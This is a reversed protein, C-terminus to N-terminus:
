IDVMMALRKPDGSFAAVKIVVKRSALVFGHKNRRQLPRLSAALSVRKSEGPGLDVAKYGLLVRAAFDEAELSGYIQAIHRGSSKGDNKIVVTIDITEGYKAPGALVKYTSASFTTYSLGFGLPFRAPIGLKDLLRQGFWRDYTISTAKIDFHPLHHESTPISFPLRGSAGVRGLLVDALAHGGEAGAYWTMLLAPVRSIFDEMSVAGAAVVSVVAKPSADTVASISDVDRRRLRLDKRDGGAGPVLGDGNTQIDTAMQGQTMELMEKERETTAPPLLKLLEPNDQFSPVVYEGEDAADYGM